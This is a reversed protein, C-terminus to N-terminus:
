MPSRLGTPRDAGASLSRVVRLLVRPLRLKEFIAEGAANKFTPEHILASLNDQYPRHLASDYTFAWGLPRTSPGGRMSAPRARTRSPQMRHRKPLRTGQPWEARLFAFQDPVARPQTTM